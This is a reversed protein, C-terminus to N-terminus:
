TPIAAASLYKAIVQRLTGFHIPKAIYDDFGAALCKEADSEMAYATLAVIPTNIKRGRLIRIAEYGNMNPMQIDMLILDFSESTAADVAQQGDEVSSTQLGM